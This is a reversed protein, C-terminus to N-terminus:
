LLIKLANPHSYLWGPLTTPLSPPTRNLFCHLTVFPPRHPSTPCRLPQQRILVSPSLDPTDFAATCVPNGPRSAADPQRSLSSSWFPRYLLPLHPHGLDGTCICRGLHRQPDTGRGRGPPPPLAAGAGAAPAAAADSHCAATLVPGLGAPAALRPTPPLPAGPRGRRAESSRGPGWGARGPGPGAGVRSRRRVLRACPPPPPPPAPRRTARPPPLAQGWGGGAERPGGGERSEM